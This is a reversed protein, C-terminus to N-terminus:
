HLKIVSLSPRLLGGVKSLYWFINMVVSSSVAELMSGMSAFGSTANQGFGDLGDFLLKSLRFRDDFTPNIGSNPCLMRFPMATSELVVTSM